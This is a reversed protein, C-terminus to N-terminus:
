DFILTLSARRRQRWFDPRGQSPQGLLIIDCEPLSSSISDKGEPSILTMAINLEKLRPLSALSKASANSVDTNWLGLRTLSKM